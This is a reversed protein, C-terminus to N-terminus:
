TPMTPKEAPPWRAPNAASAGVLSSRGRRATARGLMRMEVLMLAPELNPRQVMALADRGDSPEATEYGQDRLLTDLAERTDRDGEVIM